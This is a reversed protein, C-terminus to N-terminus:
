SKQRVSPKHHKHARCNVSLLWQNLRSKSIVEYGNSTSPRSASFATPSQSVLKIEPEPQPTSRPSKAARSNSREQQLDPRYGCHNVIGALFSPTGVPQYHMKYEILYLVACSTMRRADLTSLRSAGTERHSTLKNNIQMSVFYYRKNFHLHLRSFKWHVKEGPEGM